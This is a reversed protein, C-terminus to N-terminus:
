PKYLAPPCLDDDVGERWHRPGDDIRDKVYSWVAIPTCFEQFFLWANHAITAGLDRDRDLKRVLDPVDLYDQRCMLYHIDPQMLGDCCQDYIVPSITPVGLGMMQLQGRDLINEWSGPVDVYCLATEAKAFFEDQSTLAFDCRGGFHYDLMGRVMYRRRQRSDMGWLPCQNNLITTGNGGARLERVRRQAHQYAKWDVFTSNPLSGAWPYSKYSSHFHLRLWHLHDAAGGRIINWDGFDICVETGDVLIPFSSWDIPKLDPSETVLTRDRTPKVKVAPFGRKYPPAPEFSDLWWVDHELGRALAILPEIIANISWDIFNAKFTERTPFVIERPLPRLKGYDTAPYRPPHQPYEM